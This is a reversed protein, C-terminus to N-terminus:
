RIFWKSHAVDTKELDLPLGKDGKTGRQSLYGEAKEREGERGDGM